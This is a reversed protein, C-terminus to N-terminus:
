VRYVISNIPIYNKGYIITKNDIFDINGVGLSYVKDGNIFKLGDNPNLKVSTFIEIRYIDKFKTCNLVKGIKEGIHNNNKIDIINNGNFYGEIFEGRSFVKSLSSKMTKEDNPANNFINDLAERYTRTAINVYGKRRLRGEIKFSAVGLEMLEKLRSLMCNDRPSITYGSISKSNDSMTYKLRCLQKCEGRNGSAGCKLSSLYCNGSFCVCMAGQVFVELEIDVNQSIEKIDELRVERSLVVRSLGLNKAVRAGRVNHVGLQTSGHLVINPFVKKLVGIVGYDQVIFADVGAKLCEEVMAILEKMEGTSVLTNLTVYVKVNKLHAFGVVEQLNNLSINDAKMRANFKNLGFYVADAGAEIATYFSNLDGAPSLVEGKVM